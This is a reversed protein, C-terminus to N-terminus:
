TVLNQGRLNCRQQNEKQPRHHYRCSPPLTQHKKHKELTSSSAITGLNKHILIGSIDCLQLIHSVTRYVEYDKYPFKNQVSEQLEM